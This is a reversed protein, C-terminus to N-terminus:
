MTIGAFLKRVIFTSIIRLTIVYAGVEEVRRRATGHPAIETGQHYWTVLAGDVAVCKMLITEGVAVSLTRESPETIAVDGSSLNGHM